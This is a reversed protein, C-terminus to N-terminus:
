DWLKEKIKKYLERADNFVDDLFKEIIDLWNRHAKRLLYWISILMILTIGLIPTIILFLLFGVVAFLEEIKKFTYKKM